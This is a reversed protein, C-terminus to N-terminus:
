REGEEHLVLSLSGPPKKPDIEKPKLCGCVLQNVFYALVMSGQAPFSDMSGAKSRNIFKLLLAGTIRSVLSFAEGSELCVQSHTFLFIAGSCFPRM